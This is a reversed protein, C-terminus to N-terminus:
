QVTARFFAKEPVGDSPVEVRLMQTRTATFDGRLPATAADTSLRFGAGSWGSLDTSYRVSYRRGPIALFEMSLREATKRVVKLEFGDAPDF